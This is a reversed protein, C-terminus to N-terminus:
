PAPYSGSPCHLAPDPNPSNSCKRPMPEAVWADIVGLEYSNLSPAPPPPMQIGVATSHVYMSIQPAQANAGTTCGGTGADPNVGFQTFCGTPTLGTDQTGAANNLSGGDPGDGHCRNCHAEFIPRVDTDYAPGAPASPYLTCGAAGSIAAALGLARVLRHLHSTTM